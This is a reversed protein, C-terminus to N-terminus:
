WIPDTIKGDNKSRSLDKATTGEGENLPWYGILGPEDGRLTSNMEAQIQSATRAGQWFRVDRIGGDYFREGGGGRAGIAWPKDVAALGGSAPAQGIQEGNRYLTWNSGDFVGALHVWQGLDGPPISVSVGGGMDNGWAGTQYVGFVQRLYVESSTGFGHALINQLPLLTRPRVWAEMTLPGTFSYRDPNGLDVFTSTGNFELYRPTTPTLWTANRLTGHNQNRSSDRISTGQGEGLKWWGALGLETGQLETNMDAQVEQPTRPVRWIRVDRIQGKFHPQGVGGSQAGIAWQENSLLAGTGDPESAVQQGNRYLLWQNGDYVGTLHVWKGVDEPPVPSAALRAGGDASGVEYNGENIRLVVAPAGGAGGHQVIPRIGTIAKPRIWAELTIEDPFNLRMPAGLDVFSNTGDFEPSTLITEESPPGSGGTGPEEGKNRLALVLVLVLLVLAAAGAPIWWPFPFKKRKVPQAPPPAEFSVTPGATYDEDPNEVNVMVLQFPVQGAPADPPLPLKVTFQHTEGPAFDREAPGTLSLWEPKTAGMAHLTARGRVPKDLANTVAFSCTGQRSADLKISPVPTTISFSRM